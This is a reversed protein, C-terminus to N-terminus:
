SVAAIIYERKVGRAVLEVEDGVSRGLVGAGLPSQPTIVFVVVGDISLEKGGGCPALFLCRVDKEAQLMVLAGMAVADSPGFSRLLMFRLSQIQENLEAVRLAQGRALYSQELARTDKENEPKAEPHTAGERTAKAANTAQVSLESLHQLLAEIVKRKDPPAM